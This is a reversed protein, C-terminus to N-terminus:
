WFNIIESVSRCLKRFFYNFSRLVILYAKMIENKCKFVLFFQVLELTKRRFGKSFLIRLKTM